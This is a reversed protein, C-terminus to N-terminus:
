FNKTSFNMNKISVSNVTLLLLHTMTRQIMTSNFKFSISCEIVKMSQLHM